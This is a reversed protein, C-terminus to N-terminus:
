HVQEPQAYYGSRTRAEVGPKGITVALTHYENPGDGPAAEFSLSYFANADSVCTAIEGALDNSTNLVLGGSQYALVQLGLNGGQVQKAATVGKLFAKYYSRLGGSGTPNVNYLTIRARQLADSLGVITRFLALQDKATLDVRPTSLFTWGPSMWVVLKRGPRKAQYDAFQGLTRLSLNLREVAGYIGQAGKTNRLSQKHQNLDALVSKGDRSPTTGTTGSDSFFLLSVPRVLQGGNQSLFKEIEQRVIVGHQYSTNVEDLVLIVEVPPDDAAAAGSVAHFSVIKQPLKNDLLTFDQQQLGPVARGSQDAVVVDLTILHNATGTPALVATEPPKAQGNQQAFASLCCFCFLCIWPGHRKIM